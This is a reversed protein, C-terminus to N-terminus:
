KNSAEFGYYLSKGTEFATAGTDTFNGAAQWLCGAALGPWRV